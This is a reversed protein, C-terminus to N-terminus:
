TRTLLKTMIKNWTGFPKIFTRGFTADTPLTLTGTTPYEDKDPHYYTGFLIDFIPFIQALNKNRHQPHRSHHIRHVQPGVLVRSMWGLHLRINAHSFMLFCIAILAALFLGKPDIGVIYLVPLHICLAQVPYELWYTRYSSIVNLEQDSHHLEHLAWLALFRHQARHYWYFLFDLLVTYVLAFMLSQTLTVNQHIRMELPIVRYVMNAIFAGVILVFAAYVFNRLRGNLGHGPEAPVFFEFFGFVVFLLAILLDDIEM